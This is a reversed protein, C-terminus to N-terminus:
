FLDVNLAANQTNRQDDNLEREKKATLYNGREKILHNGDILFLTPIKALQSVRLVMMKTRTYFKM